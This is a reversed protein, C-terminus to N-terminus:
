FSFQAIFRCFRNNRGTSEWMQRKTVLNVCYVTHRTRSGWQESAFYGYCICTYCDVAFSFPFQKTYFAQKHVHYNKGILILNEWVNDSYTTRLAAPSVLHLEYCFYKVWFILWCSFVIEYVTPNCSGDMSENLNLKLWEIARNMM